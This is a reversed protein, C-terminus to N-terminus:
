KTLKGGQNVNVIIGVASLVYSSLGLRTYLVLEGFYLM